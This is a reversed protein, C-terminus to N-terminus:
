SGPGPGPPVIEAGPAALFGCGASSPPVAIARAADVEGRPIFLERREPWGPQPKMFNRRRIRYLLIIVKALL